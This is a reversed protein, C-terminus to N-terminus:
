KEIDLGTGSEFEVEFKEEYVTIKEILRRVLQENYITIERKRKTLPEKMEEIRQKLGERDAKEM